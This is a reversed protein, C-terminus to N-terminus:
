WKSYFKNLLGGVFYLGLMKCEDRQKRRAVKFRGNELNKMLRYRMKFDNRDAMKVNVRHVFERFYCTTDYNQLHKFM